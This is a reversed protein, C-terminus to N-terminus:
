VPEIGYPLPPLAREVVVVVPTDPFTRAKRFPAGVQVAVVVKPVPREYEAPLTVLVPTSEMM